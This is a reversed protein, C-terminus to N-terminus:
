NFVINTSTTSVIMSRNYARDLQLHILNPLYDLNIIQSFYYGFELHTVSAPITGIPQDFHSGFTLHTVSPPINNEISHDFMTGFTLHTVSAPIMGAISQNFWYSFVLHTVYKPVQKATCHLQIFYIQKALKPRRTRECHILISEFNDFYPLNSIRNIDIKDRYVLKCKLEIIDSSISTFAVKDRDSLYDCIQILIEEFLSLMKTWFTM